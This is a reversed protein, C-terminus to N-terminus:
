ASLKTTLLRKQDREADVKELLPRLFEAMVEPGDGQFIDEHWGPAQKFHIEGNILSSWGMYPGAFRSVVEESQFLVLDGKSPIPKLTGRADALARLFMWTERDDKGQEASKILGAWAALDLIRSMRVISFTSLVEALSSEGRRVLDFRHRLSNFYNIRDLYLRKFFPLSEEFGPAWTDAVVVLPVSEGAERLQRAAEFAIVGAICLGVLIYPGHPQAARIVRVYDAAIETMPGAPLVHPERPDFLKIGIFPRDTGIKRALKYYMLTNHIAIIPTRKGERQIHVISGSYDVPEANEAIV